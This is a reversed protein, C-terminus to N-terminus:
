VNRTENAKEVYNIIGCVISFSLSKQYEKKSLRECEEANSLFGCEVLVSPHTSHKLVYIGDGLKINRKNEPQLSEKVSEKIETALASSGEYSSYYVQLGSYKSSSFSNMHISVVVANEYSNFIKVRNKLDSIKRIGKINEADSYLLRDETRTQIVTFGRTSLEEGIFKSIELNIDKEYIGNVGIAGCDEGGHGADIIILPLVSSSTLGYEDCSVFGILAGATLILAILRRLFHM